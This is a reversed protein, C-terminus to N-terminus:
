QTRTVTYTNATRDFHVTYKRGPFDASAVSAYNRLLSGKVEGANVQFSRGPTLNRVHYRISKYM